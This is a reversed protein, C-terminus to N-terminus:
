VRLITYIIVFKQFLWPPNIYGTDLGGQYYSIIYLLRYHLRMFAAILKLRLHKANIDNDHCLVVAWEIKCKWIVVISFM